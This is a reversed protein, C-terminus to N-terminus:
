AAPINLMAQITTILPTMKVGYNLATQEMPIPSDYTEMGALVAPVMEPLGPMPTGPAVYQVPLESGLVKGFAGVIGQWTLPEPGGLIMKQNIASSNGVVAVAFAAVDKMSILSHLRTGQGVLTIPQRAQLPIGVVMGAWSEIFFNPSLITFNMKSQMLRQETEAKAQLLPLPNDPSAGFFSIFIFQELGAVEAAEILNRNGKRDVSDVTDDGGRMASNATTIVTEIGRCAIALTAPEKMDGYIPEAGAEILSKATTAMGQLALQESPSNKRVLIRVEKGERLLQRTIMGGLIGTAGVVLIM